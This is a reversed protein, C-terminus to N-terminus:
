TRAGLLLRAKAEAEHLAALHEPTDAHHPLPPADTHLTLVLERTDEPLTMLHACVDKLIDRRLGPNHEMITSAVLVDQEGSERLATRIEDRHQFSGSYWALHVTTIMEPYTLDPHDLILRLCRPTTRHNLNMSYLVQRVQDPSMSIKAALLAEKDELTLDKWWMIGLLDVLFPSCRRTTRGHQPDYRIGQISKKTIAPTLWWWARGLAGDM